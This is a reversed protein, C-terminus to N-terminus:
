VSLSCPAVSHALAELWGCTHGQSTPNVDKKDMTVATSLYHSPRVKSNLIVNSRQSINGVISDSFRRCYVHGHWHNLCKGEFPRKGCEFFVKFILVYHKSSHFAHNGFLWSHLNVCGKVCVEFFLGMLNLQVTTKIEPNWQNIHKLQFSKQSSAPIPFLLTLRLPTNWLPGLWVSCSIFM